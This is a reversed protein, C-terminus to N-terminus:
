SLIEKRKQMAQYWAEAQLVYWLLLTNSHSHNFQKWIRNLIKQEFYGDAALHSHLILDGAWDHLEGASLWEPLPVEFGHKPRDLMSKPVYEYLLEKLIRKNVGQSCKYSIPLSWSFAIVDRDLLPIRNELSVFMGTRDVKNLVTDNLFGMQDRYLMSSKTDPLALALIQRYRAIEPLLSADALLQEGALYDHTDAIGPVIHHADYGHENRFLSHLQMVSQLNAYEAANYLKNIQKLPSHQLFTGGMHRMGYPIRDIKSWLAELRSYIDYGCFLEDGGDGSLTVTVSSRALKSVLYAPLCAPDALPESFMEPLLPIVDRLDRDTIYLETHETGIHRSIDKAYEAENYRPDDFGITFTKIPASSLSQMISVILPSDIGGSLFAGIPVDSIMQDRISETLLLKLQERAEQKSGQFPHEMGSLATQALSWYETFAPDTYPASVSLIQGPLLKYIHEYISLPQPISKYRVFAGLAERNIPNQFGEMATLCYLDSAFAFHGNVMGYYLPKEGMRDRMLHLTKEKCDYLAIAFMGKMKKVADLGYAEFAELIVETDSTSRFHAVYGDAILRDQLYQFNYIEGNYSIVYRGSASKMPQAGNDSLDLIALRRHGLTIGLTEDSWYGEADPGRHIMHNCMNRIQKLNDNTNGCFGAIGCM